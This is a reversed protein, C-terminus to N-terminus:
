KVRKIFLYIDKFYTDKSIYEITPRTSALKGDYM